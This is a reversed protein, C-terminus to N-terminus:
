YGFRLGVNVNFTLPRESYITRLNSGNKLYMGVGPEIFVACRHALAYQLGAAATFSLQFPREDCGEYNYGLNSPSEEKLQGGICKEAMFGASAYIDFKRFRWATYRLNVPIGIFHLNQTAKFLPADSYGYKIDSRLYSYCIGTGVNLNQGISWSFDISFRAPLKHDFVEIFRPIPSNHSPVDTLVGGGMRTFPMLSSTPLHTGGIDKDDMLSGLGNASAAVGVSFSQKNKGKSYPYNTYDDTTSSSSRVSEKDRKDDGKPYKPYEETEDQFDEISFQSQSGHDNVAVVSPGITGKRVLKSILTASCLAKKHPQNFSEKENNRKKETANVILPVTNDIKESIFFASIVGLLAISAAIAGLIRRRRMRRSRIEERVSELLGDPPVVDYEAMKDRINDIWKDDM